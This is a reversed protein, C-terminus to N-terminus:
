LLLLVKVRIKIPIQRRRTADRFRMLAPPDTRRNILRASDSLAWLQDEEIM